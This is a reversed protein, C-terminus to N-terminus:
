LLSYVERKCVKRWLAEGSPSRKDRLMCAANSLVFFGCM